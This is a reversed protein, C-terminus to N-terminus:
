LFIIALNKEEDLRIEKIVSRWLFRKEDNSLGDYLTRFSVTTIKDLATFDRPEAAEQVPLADLQRIYRDKDTKFEELTILDNVYLDKLRDLKRLIIARQREANRAPEQKAHYETKFDAALQPIHDLLYKEITTEFITKQNPCLPIGRQYHKTCRYYARRYIKEKYKKSDRQGAMTGGCCSCRILGSFIYTYKQASKVNMAVKRQCDSFLAESVLPPCYHDNGRFRGIYKEDCLIRKVAQRTLARGTRDYFMRMCDALSGHRAYTEFLARVDDAELGPVLHKDKIAYGVPPNGSLVEGRTAKYAFVSKIRQGTNEAEFQAIAMMQNVVLRGSPTTTDYIPEWIALWGVGRRDLQAQTATYHRVSRFWRDLKTFLIVDVKGAAVDALLRQLEDRQTYKQGSIGEDIYEGALSLDDHADVYEQLAKRQAGVSDGQEDTSVRIYIAARKM